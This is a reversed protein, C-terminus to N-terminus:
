DTKDRADPWRGLMTYRSGGADLESRVLVFADVRWEIPALTLRIPACRAKRVVTVHAAYPRQEVRFGSEQLRGRLSDVLWLLPEPTTHPGLWAIGNHGWCGAADLALTFPHFRARAGINQVDCLRDLAIDGLFALTLHITEERALKGGVERQLERAHRSLLAQVGADPWLAFFMRAHGTRSQHVGGDLADREKNHM